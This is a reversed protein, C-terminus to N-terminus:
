GQGYEIVNLDHEIESIKKNKLNFIYLKGAKETFIIKEKDIFSLSWPENLGDTIKEFKIESAYLNFFAFYFLLFILIKKM